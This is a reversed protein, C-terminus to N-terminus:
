LSCYTREKYGVKIMKNVEIAYVGFDQVVKGTISYFGRSKIQYNSLSEPFHVTDIWDLNVDIFTGFAMRDKKITTVPKHTIFYGLVKVQRGLHKFLDKSYVYKHPDDDVMEFPNCLPFDLIEMQDYLDDIRHDQLVPLTFEVPKEEFLSQTAPIHSKNNKQLFNAEWLLQKKSKGTFRLAGISVLINLQEKTINTREIFDQLHLYAGSSEREVIIREAMKIELSKIHVFGVHVDNGKINTNYDSGNVCPLNVRAGTKRLELFYLERSYFGGFNNIVAVMFEKPYYTKLFLSQYSEVAYSASHAKSFSYGGFSEIQRWIEASVTDAYGREICNDFFKRKIRQMEENGRYKGSMARRLIDAEGMDLGAFHHAVKIVDEQYVMVGYTEEMLEKMIPHVYDINQPDHYQEIYARMMGSSSVEPRIISSAAVLTIYEGCEM